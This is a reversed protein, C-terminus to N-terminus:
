KVCGVHKTLFVGRKLQFGGARLKRGVVRITSSAALKQM